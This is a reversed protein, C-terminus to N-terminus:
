HTQAITPKDAAKQLAARVDNRELIQTLRDRYTLLLYERYTSLMGQRGSHLHAKDVVDTGADSFAAFSEGTANYIQLTYQWSFSMAFDPTAVRLYWRTLSLLLLNEANSTALRTAIEQATPRASWGASEVNWESAQLGLVLREEIAEAASQEVTDESPVTWSQVLIDSPVTFDDFLQGVFTKPKRSSLRDREDIVSVVLKNPVSYCAKPCQEEISLYQPRPAEYTPGGMVLFPVAIPDIVGFGGMCGPLLSMIASLCLTVGAQRTRM